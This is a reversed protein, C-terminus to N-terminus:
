DPSRQLSRWGPWFSKSIQISEITQLTEPKSDQKITLHQMLFQQSLGKFIYAIM